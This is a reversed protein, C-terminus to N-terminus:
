TSSPALIEISRSFTAINIAAKTPKADTVSNESPVSPNISLLYKFCFTFILHAGCAINKAIIEVADNM